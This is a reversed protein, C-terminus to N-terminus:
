VFSQCLGLSGISIIDFSPRGLHRLRSGERLQVIKKEM